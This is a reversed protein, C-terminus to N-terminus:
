PLEFPLDMGDVAHGCSCDGQEGVRAIVGAMASKLADTHEAFVRFVEEMRVEGSHTGDDQAIGADHDTVLAVTAYCVALERALVAEPHGTM